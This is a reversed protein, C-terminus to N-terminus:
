NATKSQAPVPRRDGDVRHGRFTLRGEAAAGLRRAARHRTEQAPPPSLRPRDANMAVLVSM